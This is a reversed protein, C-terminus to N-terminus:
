TAFPASVALIFLKASLIAVATGLFSGFLGIALKQELEMGDRHRIM